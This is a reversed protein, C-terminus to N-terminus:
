RKVSLCGSVAGELIEACRAFSYNSKIHEMLAGSGPADLAGVVARGIEDVSRPDVLGALGGYYEKPAGYNTMVVECGCAAAELAVMGVAERLSPLAFVKARMYTNRLEEDSLQGIYSINEAGGILRELERRGDEGKVSGGLVLRFGYKKAAEILRPVNKNWMNLNSVHLCFAEKEPMTDAPEIRFSLPVIRIKEAPIDFAECLYKKEYESLAILMDVKKAAQRFEYSPNSMHLKGIHGFRAALRYSRVSRQPDFVPACIVPVGYNRIDGVVNGMVMSWRILIVADYKSCDVDEWYNILEVEHGRSKLAEYWMLGMVKIGSRRVLEVCSSTIGIKM